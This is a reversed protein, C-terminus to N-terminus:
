PGGAGLTGPPRGEATTVYLKGLISALREREPETLPSLFGATYREVAQRLEALASQGTPTMTVVYRRRDRPDRVRSAYGLAELGDLLEVMNGSDIGAATCLEQQSAGGVTDLTLLIVYQLPRIRWGALVEKFGARVAAGVRSLLFWPDVTLRQRAPQTQM